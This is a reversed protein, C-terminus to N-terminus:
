DTLVAEAQRVEFPTSQSTSTATGEVPYETGNVAFSAQWTVSLGIRVSPSDYQYIHTVAGDPWPGGPDSTTFTGTGDGPDWIYSQPTLHVTVTNGLVTLDETYEVAESQLYVPKNVYVWGRNPSVTIEGGDAVISEVDSITILRAPDVAPAANQAPVPATAPSADRPILNALFLAQECGMVSLRSGDPCVPGTPIVPGSGSSPPNGRTPPAYNNIAGQSRQSPAAHTWTGEISVASDEPRAGWTYSDDEAAVTAPLLLCATVAVLVMLASDKTVSTM